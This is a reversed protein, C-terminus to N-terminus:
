GVQCAMQSSQHGFQLFQQWPFDIAVPVNYNFHRGISDRDYVGFGSTVSCTKFFSTCSSIYKMATGPAVNDLIRNLHMSQHQSMCTEQWIRSLPGLKSLLDFWMQCLLPSASSFRFRNIAGQQRKPPHLAMSIPKNPALDVSVSDSFGLCRQPQPMELNQQLTMWSQIVPLNQAPIQLPNSGPVIRISDILLQQPPLFQSGHCLDSIRPIGTHLQASSQGSCGMSSTALPRLDSISVGPSSRSTFTGAAVSRIEAQIATTTFDSFEHRM